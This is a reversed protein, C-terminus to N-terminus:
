LNNQNNQNNQNNLNNRHQEVMQATRQGFYFAAIMSATARLWESTAGKTVEITLTTGIVAMAIWARISINFLHSQGKSGHPKGSNDGDVLDENLFSQDLDQSHAQAM